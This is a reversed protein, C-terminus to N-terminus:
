ATCVPLYICTNLLITNGENAPEILELLMAERLSHIYIPRNVRLCSDVIRRPRVIRGVYIEALIVCCSRLHESVWTAGLSRCLSGMWLSM